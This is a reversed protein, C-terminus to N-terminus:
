LKYVPSELNENKFVPSWLNHMWALTSPYPVGSHWVLANGRGVGLAQQMLPSPLSPGVGSM